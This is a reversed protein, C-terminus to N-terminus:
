RMVHLVLDTIVAGLSALLLYIVKDFKSDLRIIAGNNKLQYEECDRIREEHAAFKGACESRMDTM